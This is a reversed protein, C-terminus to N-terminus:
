RDAERRALRQLTAKAEEAIPTDAAQKALSEIVKRAEPTAIIELIELARVAQLAAPPLRNGMGKLLAEARLRLDASPKGQLVRRLAPEALRGQRNLEAGAAEKKEFSDADLDAVLQALLDADVVTQKSLSDRIFPVAQEPAAALRRVAKIAAAGDAAALAAWSERLEEPGLRVAPTAPLLGAVDWVLATADRSGSVLRRGDPSFAVALVPGQHGTLKRLEKRTDLDWLRITGDSGGGAIVRGDPSVSLAISAHDADVQRWVEAGAAVEWLRVPFRNPPDFAASVLRRGDPTFALALVWDAQGLKALERGSAGDWVRIQHGDTVQEGAALSRGDPTCAARQTARFEKDDRAPPKVQRAEKGTALDWVRVAGDISNEWRDEVRRVRHRSMSVVSKGDALLSVFDVEGPDGEFRRLEKGTAADRVLIAQARHYGVVIAKGDPTYAAAGVTARSGFSALQKGTAADWALLGDAGTLVTKGDPSFALVDVDGAHGALPLVEKSTAVDFLRVAQNDSLALTKGDPSFAGAFWFGRKDGFRRIEKGTAVDWLATSGDRGTVVAKGDPSFAFFADGEDGGLAHMEKGTEADWLRVPRAPEATALVKGDPSFGLSRGHGTSSLKRLERGTTVDFLRIEASPDRGGSGQIAITKGDASFAVAGIFPDPFPFRRVEKGGAADLLRVGDKQGVVVVKGDPSLAACRVPGKLGPVEREKGSATDWLKLTGNWQYADDECLSMLVKGDASFVLRRINGKHGALVRLQKGTAPDWLRITGEPPGHWSLGRHGAWGDGDAAALMKGDPSFALAWIPHTHRLRVTGLRALAGPPLPDGNRDVALSDGKATGCALLVLCTALPTAVLSFSRSSM